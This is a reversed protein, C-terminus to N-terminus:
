CIVPAEALELEEVLAQGLEEAQVQELLDIVIATM